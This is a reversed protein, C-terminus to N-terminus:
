IKLGIKRAAESLAKVRGHFRYPGKDLVAQTIGQKVAKEAMLKGVMEAIM